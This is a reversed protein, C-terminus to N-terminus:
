QPVEADVGVYTEFYELVRSEQELVPRASAGQEIAVATALAQVLSTFATVSRLVSAGATEAYFVCDANRALPSAPNDTIAITMAGAERAWQLARVTERPYQHIATVVFCSDPGIHRLQDPLTGSGLTLTTVRDRVLGLLYGLLAAIPYTKRLGFAYVESRGALAEVARSWTAPDVRAFTRSINVQDFTATQVLPDTDADAQALTALTDFRRLMQAHERLRQQCLRTLHPYGDLGLATAFRVVTSENVGTANALESITMFAVGEPDSLVWRALNQQTRTMTPLRAQLLSSLEDFTQPPLEATSM